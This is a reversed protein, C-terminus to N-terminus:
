FRVTPCKVNKGGKDYLGTKVISLEYAGRSQNYNKLFSTTADYNVTLRFGSWEYGVMPIFADGARYYLGGIMQTNGDGSLNYNANMGIVTEWATGMKSIYANPNIIWQDNLKFMGNLFLTIRQDLRQDTLSNAFFSEKPQNVHSISVGVNLYTNDTPFYAYNMGVGLDFYGVSSYAFPEGNPINIDFFKGNWQDDFTLKTFDVRKTAYGLSFGLSLLSNLGVLQHYAINGYARTSKLGGTGAQDSLLAGGVGMWGNAFRNYFLQADGWVSMTKYPNTLISAWQNRYNVGLRWDVAPAFGTNAPNVLLPTNYYQSFHLDQAKLSHYNFAAITAIFVILKLYHVKEM